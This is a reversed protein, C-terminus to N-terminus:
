YLDRANFFVTLNQWHFCEIKQARINQEFLFASPNIHIENDVIRQYSYNIKAGAHQKFFNIDRTVSFKDAFFIQLIYNLRATFVESYILLM